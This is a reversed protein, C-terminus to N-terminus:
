TIEPEKDSAFSAALSNEKATSAISESNEESSQIKLNDAVLDTPYQFHLNEKKTWHIPLATIFGKIDTLNNIGTPLHQSEKWFDDQFPMPSILKSKKADWTPLIKADQLQKESDLSNNRPIWPFAAEYFKSNAEARQQIARWSSPSGPQEIAQQLETAPRVGGTIGFIKKWVKKRLDHAFIRVERQSGEGNIDARQTAKDAVLIALESDRNGLMSRDNINASGLLAYLDDVIMLKSHVYIQETEYRNGLQIWNRLNLLTVYEFCKELPISEYETNDPNLVASHDGPARGQAIDQDIRERMRLYRRIGNLLSNSGFVLTQMTWYVQVVISASSLSGEPHVPLTIYVHFSSGKTALIARGIREILAQCIRNTPPRQTSEDREKFTKNWNVISGDASFTRVYGASRNQNKEEYSNIFRGAPSLPSDPAFFPIPNGFDGVFFQNEIYIFRRAQEILRLMAQYIDDQVGVNQWKQDAPAKSNEKTLHNASASRLVQVMMGGAAAFYAPPQADPLRKSKSVLSNWRLIFNRLLDRVAPGEVRAHVDQWPMRPQRSPDLTTPNPTNVGNNIVTGITGAEEYKVQWINGQELRHREPIAINPLGELRDPDIWKGEDIAQVQAICGNYRNLAERGQADAQLNYTADDFRGYAIDLGGVFGIKRDIVVQKQHHSFFNKNKDAYSPSLTVHVQETNFRDNISELVIKTQDDYTQVPETDDWPMVHINIKKNNQVINCLLSYLTVGPALQADWNVQWGAICIEEKAGKIASILHAFYEEGTTFATVQNGDTPKSFVTPTGVWTNGTVSTEYPKGSPDVIQRATRKPTNEM